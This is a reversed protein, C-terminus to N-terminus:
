SYAGIRCSAPCATENSVGQLSHQIIVFSQNCTACNEPPLDPITDMLEPNDIIHKIFDFTVGINREVYEKKTM